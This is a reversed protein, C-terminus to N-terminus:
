HRIVICCSPLRECWFPHVLQTHPRRNYLRYLACATWRPTRSMASARCTRLNESRTKILHRDQIPKQVAYYNFPKVNRFVCQRWRWPLQVPELLHQLLVTSDAVWMWGRGGTGWVPVPRNRGWHWRQMWMFWCLWGSFPPLINRRFTSVNLPSFCTWVVM